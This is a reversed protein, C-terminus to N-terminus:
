AWDVQLPREMWPLRIISYSWSLSSLLVDISRQEVVLHFGSDLIELKGERQLFEQRFGDASTNKLTSWHGVVALLLAQAEEKEAYSVTRVKEFPAALPYGCLIKLLCTTPEEPNEEGSALFHLVHIAHQQADVSEFRNRANLLNLGRFFPGLFPHLLVVGAYSTFIEAKGEEGFESSVHKDPITSRAKEDRMTPPPFLANDVFALGTQSEKEQLFVERYIKLQKELEPTSKESLAFALNQIFSAKDKFSSVRGLKDKLRSLVSPEFTFVNKAKQILQDIIWDVFISNFQYVLRLSAREHTLNIPLEAMVKAFEFPPLAQVEQELDEVNEFVTPCPWTGTHLFHFLTDAGSLLAATSPIDKFPVDKFQRVLQRYLIGALDATEIHKPDVSGLDIELRPIFYLQGIPAHQDLVTKLVPIFESHFLTELKKRIGFATPEDSFQLDFVVRKIQHRITQTL